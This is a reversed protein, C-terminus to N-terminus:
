KEGESVPQGPSTAPTNPKEESRQGEPPREGRPLNPQNNLKEKIARVRQTLADRAEQIDVLDMEEISPIFGMESPYYSGEGFPTNPAIGRAHRVLMERISLVEDPQTMSAEENWESCYDFPVFSLSTVIKIEM